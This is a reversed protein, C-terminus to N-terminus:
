RPGTSMHTGMRVTEVWYLYDAIQQRTGNAILLSCVPWVYSDYEDEAELFQSVGIPDWDRLLVQRVADRYRLARELMAKNSKKNM